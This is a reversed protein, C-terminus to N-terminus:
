CNKWLPYFVDYCNQQIYSLIRIWNQKIMSVVTDLFVIYDSHLVPAKKKMVSVVFIVASSGSLEEVIVTFAYPIGCM